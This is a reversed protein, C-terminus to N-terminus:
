QISIQAICQVKEKSEAFVNNGFRSMLESIGKTSEKKNSELFTTNDFCSMPESIGKEREKENSVMEIFLCYTDISALLCTKSEDMLKGDLVNIVSEVVFSNAVRYKPHPIECINM